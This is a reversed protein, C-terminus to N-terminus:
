AGQWAQRTLLLDYGPSGDPRSPSHEIHDGVRQFGLKALVRQSGLNDAWVGAKIEALAPDSFATKLATQCAETVLGQGWFDPHLSYGLEANTVAVTGILRPGQVIGWVFGAGAYPVSRTASYAPDAPWPWSPGLQRTVDWHRVLEHLDAADVPQISRFGMRASCAELPLAARLQPLTLNLEVCEIEKGLANAFRTGPGTEVFGLKQLVRASRQNGALYATTMDSPDAAFRALLVARAAETAYGKGWARPSLWYGFGMELGIVGAFGADDEIVFTKGPKAIESLFYQFDASRYPHPVSTLWRSVEINDIAQIIAVEDSAALPRLVLRATQHQETLTV